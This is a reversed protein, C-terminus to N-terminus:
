GKTRVRERQYVAVRELVLHATRRRDLLQHHQPQFRGLFVSLTHEDTGAAFSLTYPPKLLVRRGVIWNEAVGKKSFFRKVTEEFAPFPQLELQDDSPPPQSM